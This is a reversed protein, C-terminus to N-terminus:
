KIIYVGEFLIADVMFIGVNSVFDIITRNIM